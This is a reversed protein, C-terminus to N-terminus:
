IPASSREPCDRIRPRCQVRDIEHLEGLRAAPDPEPALPGFLDARRELRRERAFLGAITSATTSGKSGGIGAWDRGLLRELEGLRQDAALGVPPLIMEDMKLSLILSNTQNDSAASRRVILM